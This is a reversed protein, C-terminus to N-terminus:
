HSAARMIALSSGHDMVDGVQVGREARGKGSLLPILVPPSRPQCQSGGSGVGTGAKNGRTWVGHGVGARRGEGAKGGYEEQNCRRRCTERGEGVREGQYGETEVETDM